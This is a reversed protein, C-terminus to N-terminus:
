VPSQKGPVVVALHMRMCEGFLVSSDQFSYERRPAM